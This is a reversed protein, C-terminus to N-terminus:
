HEDTPRKTERSQSEKLARVTERLENLERRLADIDGDWRRPESFEYAFKTVLIRDGNFSPYRPDYAIEQGQEKVLRM